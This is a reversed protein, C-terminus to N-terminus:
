RALAARRARAHDRVRVYQSNKGCQRGRVAPRSPFSPQETHEPVDAWGLPFQEEADVPKELFSYAGLRMAEVAAAVTGGLLVATGLAWASAGRLDSLPVAVFTAPVALATLLFMVAYLIPATLHFWAEAKVRLPARSILIRPLLIIHTLSSRKELRKKSRTKSRKKLRKQSRKKRQFSIRKKFSRM